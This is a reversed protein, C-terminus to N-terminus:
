SIVAQTMVQIKSWFLSELLFVPSSFVLNTRAGFSCAVEGIYLYVRIFTTEKVQKNQQAVM